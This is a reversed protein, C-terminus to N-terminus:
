EYIYCFPGALTDAADRITIGEAGNLDNLGLQVVDDLTVNRSPPSNNVTTTNAVVYLRDGEGGEVGNKKGTVDLYNQWIWWMRDIQAHQLYFFPDGVSSFLDGGPDGGTFFHCRRKSPASTPSQTILAHADSDKSWTKAAHAGIDRRLCRPNHGLGDKQPNPTIYALAPAMPGLNVTFNAFPGSTVCGGGQGGSLVIFPLDNSPINTGNNRDDRCGNGSLSTSSGDFIPANLLDLAYKGWNLYPFVGRYGCEQRLAQEYTWTFYRHWSLFSGTGHISLTQNIHTASFDDYRSRAGPALDGSIPPKDMLCLVADVYATKEDSKLSDWERRVSATKITCRPQDKDDRAEHQQQEHATRLGLRHTLTSLVKNVLPQPQDYSAPTHGSARLRVNQLAKRALKDTGTTDAPVFSAANIVPLWAVVSATVRM